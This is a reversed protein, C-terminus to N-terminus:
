LKVLQLWVCDAFILLLCFSLHKFYQVTVRERNKEVVDGTHQNAEESSYRKFESVATFM